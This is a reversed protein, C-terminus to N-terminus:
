WWAADSDWPSWWLGAVGVRHGTPGQGVDGGSCRGVPKGGTGAGGPLAEARASSLKLSPCSAFRSEWARPVAGPWCRPDRGDRDPGAGALGGGQGQCQSSLSPSSRGGPCHAILCWAATLLPRILASPNPLCGGGCLPPSQDRNSAAGYPRSPAPPVEDGHPSVSPVCLPRLAASAPRCPAGLGVGGAPSRKEASRTVGAGRLQWPFHRIEANEQVRRPPPFAFHHPSPAATADRGREWGWGSPWAGVFWGDDCQQMVDM